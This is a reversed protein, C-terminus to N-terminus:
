VCKHHKAVTRVTKKLVLNFFINQSHVINYSPGNFLLEFGNATAYLFDHKDGGQWVILGGPELVRWAEKMAMRRMLSKEKSYSMPPIFNQSNYIHNRLQLAVSKCHAGGFYSAFMAGVTNSNIPLNFADAIFDVQGFYTVQIAAGDKVPSEFNPTGPFLNFILLQKNLKQFDVLEYGEKTPGGIEVLPGNVKNLAETLNFEEFKQEM